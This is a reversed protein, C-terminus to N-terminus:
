FSIESVSCEPSGILHCAQQCAIALVLAQPDALGLWIIVYVCPQPDALRLWIVVYVSPQPDALGLWIIVYVNDFM